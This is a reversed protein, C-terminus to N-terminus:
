KRVYVRVYDVLMRQPFVTSDDPRGPMAGGVALNLIIFFPHDYVWSKGPGLDAPTRASFLVDDVFFRVVGPEWEVAFLHFDDGLRGRPLKYAAALATKGYFGPGHLAGHLTAPESGINEMADIEGCDPWGVSSFNDGLIWFASWLGSGTPIKLRAEFRGYRQSFRKETNLRASTYNRRVGDSDSYNEKRAELVLNGAEQRVNQTRSTYYELEDNGWGDGGTQVFWKARDPPAGDPGNFEDSWAM